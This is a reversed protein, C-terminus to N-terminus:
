QNLLYLYFPHGNIEKLGIQANFIGRKLFPHNNFQTLIDGDIPQAELEEPTRCLSDIEVAQSTGQEAPNAM